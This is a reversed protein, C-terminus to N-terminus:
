SQYPHVARASRLAQAWWLLQDILVKAATACAEADRPRGDEFAAQSNHFSVTDRMTAAHLEAFVLRLHEVARLGGALGGHSVFGVPKAKWETLHWDIFNKLAAPFSHNYEPTVVVFAEAAALRPMTGALTAVDEPSQQYSPGRLGPATEAVDLVDLEVDTRQALQDAFWAAVTPTFRDPRASGVILAVRVTSDTM